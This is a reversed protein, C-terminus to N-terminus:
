GSGERLVEAVVRLDDVLGAYMADRDTDDARLVASPHITALVRPRTDETDTGAAPAPNGALDQPLPFLKGRDVTVRFDSGLVAKAATAGLCVLVEPELVQLEAVLWPRCAVIETRGPTKHLRRKGREGSGSLTFRFHKVANTLYTQRRDIGADELARDLVRGAPGVFPRGQKDEQDGPMEGLLVVRADADGEGFVTQTADRHLDCGRCSRAAEKLQALDAHPPVFEAATRAPKRAV